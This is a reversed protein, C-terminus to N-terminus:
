QIFSPRNETVKVVHSSTNLVVLADPGVELLLAPLNALRGLVKYSTGALEAEITKQGTELEFTFAKALDVIVRVSGTARAKEILAPPVKSQRAPAASTQADVTSCGLCSSLGLLLLSGITYARM